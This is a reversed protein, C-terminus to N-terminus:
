GFVETENSVYSADVHLFACARDRACKKDSMHYDYCHQSHREKWIEFAQEKAMCRLEHLEEVTPCAAGISLYHEPDKGERKAKRVMREEFRKRKGEEYRRRALAAKERAEKTPDFQYGEKEYILAQRIVDKVQELNTANVCEEMLQFANLEDRCMRRIHFVISKMKVPYKEVLELYETALQLKPPQQDAPLFIAPNDLLGEASMIGQTCTLAQNAAVDEHTRVNGNSILILNNPVAKRIEAVQDLHAPGDRAGPGKRGVLNVRYRAHICVLSAGAEALQNVLEITEPITDLLRIKVFVPIHVADAVTRM